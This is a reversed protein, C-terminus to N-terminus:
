LFWYVSNMGLKENTNRFFPHKSYNRGHSSFGDLFQLLTSIETIRIRRAM